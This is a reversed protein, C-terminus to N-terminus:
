SPSVRALFWVILTELMELRLIAVISDVTGSAYGNVSSLRFLATGSQIVTFMRLCHALMSVRGKGFSRPLSDLLLCTLNWCIIPSILLLFVRSHVEGHRLIVAVDGLLLFPSVIFLWTAIVVRRHNMSQVYYDPSKSLNLAAQLASRSSPLPPKRKSVMGIQIITFVGTLVLLSLSLCVKPQFVPFPLISFTCALFLIAAVLCATSPVVLASVRLMKNRTVRSWRGALVRDIIYFSTRFISSATFSLVCASGYSLRNSPSEMWCQLAAMLPILVGTVVQVLLTSRITQIFIICHCLAIYCYLSVLWAINYNLSTEM